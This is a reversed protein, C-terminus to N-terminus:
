ILLIITLITSYVLLATNIVRPKLTLCVLSTVPARDTVVVQTDQSLPNPGRFQLKKSKLVSSLIFQSLYTSLM